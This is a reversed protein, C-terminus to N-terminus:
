LTDCELQMLYRTQRGRGVRQTMRNSSATLGAVQHLTVSICAHTRALKRKSGNWAKRRQLRVEM